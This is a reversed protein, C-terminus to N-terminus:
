NFDWVEAGNAPINIKAQSVTSSSVKAKKENTNPVQEYRKVFDEPSQVNAQEKFEEETKIIKPKSFERDKEKSTKNFRKVTKKSKKSFIEEMQTKTIMFKKEADGTLKYNKHVEYPYKEDFFPQEGRLTYVCNINDIKALEAPDLLKRADHKFSLSSSGKSGRSRSSDRTRITAEGLIKSVYECTDYESSGLFLISDCNGVLTNWDDKYKKKIQALNQLVICCSIKYKRMTALTESFGPIEGINAFEDLLCQVPWVLTQRGMEVKAKKCDNIYFQADEKTRFVYREPKPKQLDPLVDSPKQLIYKGKYKLYYESQKKGCKKEEIEANQLMELMNKAEKESEFMTVIPIKKENIINYRTSCITEARHYLIDFMQSYLMSALFNFAGGKTPIIIFLATREDGLTNLNINNEPDNFDTETLRSVEPINFNNIRVDTSVLISTATKAGALKFTDYNTIALSNPNKARAADFLKDLTSKSSSDNENVKGAKILKSVNTFTRDKPPRFDILYFCIAQLLAKASQEWFQDGKSAGDEATNKLLCDVMAAVSAEEYTGDEKRKIYDFPNYRNSLSMDTLNFVRIKYGNEKLFHSQSAYLEGSPDTIIFSSNGQLMNPKIFFRSKGTGSGGIILVNNNRRTKYTDLSLKLNKSIIMNNDIEGVNVPTVYKKNYSKYDENWKTSGKEKGPLSQRNQEEIIFLWLVAFAFIVTIIGFMKLHTMTFPFFGLINSQFNNVAYNFIEMKAADPNVDTAHALHFAIITLIIYLVTAMFIYFGKSSKKPIM